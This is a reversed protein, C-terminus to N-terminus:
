QLKDYPFRAFAHKQGYSLGGYPNPLNWGKALDIVQTACHKAFIGQVLGVPLNYPEKKNRLDHLQEYIANAAADTAPYSVYVTQIGSKLNRQDLTEDKWYGDNVGPIFGSYLHDPQFGVTLNGAPANVSINAHGTPSISVTGNRSTCGNINFSVSSNSM